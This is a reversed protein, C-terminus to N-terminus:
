CGGASPAPGGPKNPPLPAEPSRGRKKGKVPGLAAASFPGPSQLSTLSKEFDAILQEVAVIEEAIFAKLFDSGKSQAIEGVAKYM